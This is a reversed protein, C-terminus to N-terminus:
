KISRVSDFGTQQNDLVTHPLHKRFKDMLRKGAGGREEEEEVVFRATVTNLMKMRTRAPPPCILSGISHSRM